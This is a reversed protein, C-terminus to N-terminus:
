WSFSGACFDYWVGDIILPCSTDKGAKIAIPVGKKTKAGSQCCYEVTGTLNPDPNPLYVTTGGQADCDENIITSTPECTYFTTEPHGQDTVDVGNATVRQVNGFQDFTVCVNYEVETDADKVTYCTTTLQIEPVTGQCDVSLLTGYYDKNGEKLKVPRGSFGVNQDTVFFFGKENDSLQSKWSFVQVTDDGDYWYDSGGVGPANIEADTPAYALISFPNDGCVKEPSPLAQEFVSWKCGGSMGYAFITWPFAIGAFVTDKYDSFYIYDPDNVDNVIIPFEGEAGRFVSIQCSGATFCDPNECTAFANSGILLMGAFILVMFIAMSYKRSLM